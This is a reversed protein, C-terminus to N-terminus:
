LELAISDRICNNDEMYNTPYEPYLVRLMNIISGGYIRLLGRGGENAIAISTVGYWDDLTKVKLRVAIKELFWKQTQIDTWYGQPIESFRELSWKYRKCNDDFADLLLRWYL